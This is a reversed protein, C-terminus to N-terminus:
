AEFPIGGALSLDPHAALLGRALKPDGRLKAAISEDNSGIRGADVPRADHRVEVVRQDASTSGWRHTEDRAGSAM